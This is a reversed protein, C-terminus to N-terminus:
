LISWLQFLQLKGKLRDCVQFSYLTKKVNLVDLQLEIGYIDYLWYLVTFFDDLKIKLM